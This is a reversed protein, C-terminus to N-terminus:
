FVWRGDKQVLAGDVRIEGGQRLDKVMDWHLLSKNVGGGPFGIAQGVALHVTGGIKEDYLINGIWRELRYNTGFAFEGVYRAGSDLNLMAELHDQGDTATAKVVKGDEFWLHIGDVRRGGPPFIAPYTYAIHGNVSDEVPSAMIEGDPINVRGDLNFFTRGRVSLTLDTDEGKMSIESADRLVSDIIHQQRVGVEAWDQDVSNFVYDAFAEGSMGVDRAGAETPFQTLVMRTKTTIHERLAGIGLQLKAMRQRDFAAGEAPKLPAQIRITVDVHQALALLLDNRRRLADESALEVVADEIEPYDVQWALPGAGRKSAERCVETLLPKALESYCWVLVAQGEKVETSHGVLIEAMRTVRPDAAQPGTM